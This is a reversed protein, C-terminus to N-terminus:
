IIDTNQLAGNQLCVSYIMGSAVAPMEVNPKFNAKVFNQTPRTNALRCRVLLFNARLQYSKRLYIIDIKFKRQLSM